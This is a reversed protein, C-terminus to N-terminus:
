AKCFPLVEFETVHCLLKPSCIVYDILSIGDCNTAGKSKDQGSRGNAIM